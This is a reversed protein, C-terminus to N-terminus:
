AAVSAVTRLPRHAAEMRPTVLRVLVEDTGCIMRLRRRARFHWLRALPVPVRLRESIEDYSYGDIVRMTVVQRYHLPLAELAGRLHAKAESRLAVEEPNLPSRVGAVGSVGDQVLRMATGRMHVQHRVEKCCVNRAIGQVWSVYAEPTRLAQLKTLVILLCTQVLDEVVEHDRCLRGVTREVLPRTRRLLEATAGEGGEQARRVLSTEVHEVVATM